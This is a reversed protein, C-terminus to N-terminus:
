ISVLNTEQHFLFTRTSRSLLKKVRNKIITDGPNIKLLRNYIKIASERQKMKEYSIGIMRYSNMKMIRNHTLEAVQSLASVAGPYNRSYFFYIEGLDEYLLASEPNQAIGERLFAIAEPFKGLGKGLRWGGVDYAEVFKPDLRTVLRCIALIEGVKKPDARGTAASELTLGLEHHYIETNLWIYSALTYRFEGLMSFFFELVSAKGTKELHLAMRQSALRPEILFLSSLLFLIWFFKM